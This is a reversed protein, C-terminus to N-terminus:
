WFQPMDNTSTAPPSSAAPFQDAIAPSHPGPDTLSAPNQANIVGQPPEDPNGYSAAGAGVSLVSAAALGGAGAGLLGRRTVDVMVIEVSVTITFPVRATLVEPLSHRGFAGNRLVPASASSSSAADPRRRRHSCQWVVFHGPRGRRCHRMGFAAFRRGDADLRGPIFRHGWLTEWEEHCGGSFRHDFGILFVVSNQRLGIVM